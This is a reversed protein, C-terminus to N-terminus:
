QLDAFRLKTKAAVTLHLMLESHRSVMFNKFSCHLTSVTMVRVATKLQLLGSQGHTNICRTNLTVRVLLSREGEFM